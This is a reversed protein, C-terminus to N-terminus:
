FLYLLFTIKINIIYYYLKVNKLPKRTSILWSVHTKKLIIKLM